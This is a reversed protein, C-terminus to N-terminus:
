NNGIWKKGEGTRDARGNKKWLPTLIGEPRRVVGGNEGRREKKEESCTSTFGKIEKFLARRTKGREV